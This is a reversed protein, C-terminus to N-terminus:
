PQDWDGGGAWVKISQILPHLHPHLPLLLPVDEVLDGRGDGPRGLVFKLTSGELMLHPWGLLVGRYLFLILIQPDSCCQKKNCKNPLVPWFGSSLCFRHCSSFRPFCFPWFYGCQDLIVQRWHKWWNLDIEWYIRDWLFLFPHCFTVDFLHQSSWKKNCQQSM